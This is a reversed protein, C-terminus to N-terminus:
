TTSIEELNEGKSSMNQSQDQEKNFLEKLEEKNSSKFSESPQRQNENGSQEINSSDENKSSKSANYEDVREVQTGFTKGNIDYTVNLRLRAIDKWQGKGFLHPNVTYMGVDERILIDGKVLKTITNNITAVALNLETAIQRKVSINVIIQNGYGMRKLLNYLVSNLGKPLDSLYLIDDLYLKIFNPESSINMTHTEESETIEGTESDYGTTKSVNTIKM